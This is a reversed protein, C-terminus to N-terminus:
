RRVRAGMGAAPPEEDSSQAHETRIRGIQRDYDEIEHELNMIKTMLEIRRREADILKERARVRMGVLRRLEASELAVRIKAIAEKDERKRALRLAVTLLAVDQSDSGDRLAKPPDPSAVGASGGSPSSPDKEMFLLTKQRAKELSVGLSELVGAAIGEGERILGLLLHETGIYDHDHRRSEDV